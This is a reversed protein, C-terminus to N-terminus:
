ALLYVGVAAATLAGPLLLAGPNRHTFVRALAEGAPARASVAGLERLFYGAIAFNGLLMVAVFWLARAPLSQEKWAVWVFFALFAFYADFLTAVVWPDRIVPGRVFEGLPQQLSASTTAGLLAVIVLVFLCRLFWIM